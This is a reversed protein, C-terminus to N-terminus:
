FHYIASVLVLHQRVDAKTGPIGIVDGEVDNGFRYQYAADVLLNKWKFGSGVSCGYYDEPYNESPEPDYFIGARVPIVTTEKIFLYEGGLRVQHTPKVSAKNKPEGTIPRTQHGDEDTLIYKGWETRYVDIAATFNDSFRVALGIGYSDPMDLEMDERHVTHSESSYEPPLTSFTQSQNFKLKRKVDATFETKYVGGLTFMSNINWLFGFHMNYGSFTYRDKYDIKMDVPNGNIMGTPSSHYKEEWGNHGFIDEWINFTMGVYFWPTIQVAFAPSITKLGGEQEFHIHDKLMESDINWNYDFGIDKNFDYMRQYNLTIIMNKKLWQFPYAISLYNLSSSSMSNTGESEPHVDSTYSEERGYYSYVASIEPRELQILGAPNWSAATADDAVGIFAGGMGM